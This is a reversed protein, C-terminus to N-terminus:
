LGFLDCEAQLEEVTERGTWERDLLWDYLSADTTQHVVLGSVVAVAEFRRDDDMVGDSALILVAREFNM